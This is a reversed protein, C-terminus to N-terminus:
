VKMKAAVEVEPPVEKLTVIKKGTVADVSYPTLFHLPQKAKIRGWAVMGMGYLMILNQYTENVKEVADKVTAADTSPDFEVGMIRAVLPLLMLLVGQATTSLLAPKSEVVPAPVTLEASAM